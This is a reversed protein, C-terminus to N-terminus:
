LWGIRKFRWFLTGCLVGILGLVAAYGYHWRLEPMFDFNMGYIGAVATPVALIAAWAALQRTIVGQRHQELLGATEVVNALMEKLGAALALCRRVHDHVDRFWPRATADVAPLEAMSLRRAVEEMPGAIREFRRLQRRLRFIRRITEPDPFEDIASEELAHVAEDLRDIVPDYGDAIFDLVAHLVFDPGEALREANAELHARLELHARPNGQRVTVLFDRGLFMATQGYEIVEDCLAATRAILFLQDGYPEVKAPHGACMADEVALPHLGFQRMVQEMLAEDPECLGVWDFCGHPLPERPTGDVRLEGPEAKGHCYRRAAIIPM